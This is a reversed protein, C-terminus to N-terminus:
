KYYNTYDTNDYNFITYDTNNNYKSNYETGTNLEFWLSAPRSSYFGHERRKIFPYRFSVSEETLKYDTKDAFIERQFRLASM